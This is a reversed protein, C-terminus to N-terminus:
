RLASAVPARELNYRCRRAERPPLEGLPAPVLPDEPEPGRRRPDRDGPPHDPGRGLGRRRGDRDRLFPILAESIEWTASNWLYSPSHDVAYYRVGAGVTFMPEAFSTPRAWEFGMGEDCSVDVFLSGPAFRDLEDSTVFMLPADTDQLICNVVIDHEALFEAVSGRGPAASRWRAARTGRPRPRLPRAAGARDARRGGPRQPADARDRRARRARVARDGRRPRDRRLQDGRRAAAARLRRDHGGAAARAAGLLLRGARQEQPLRAPQLQRGRDLPEDGGVRDADPPPRDRSQTM